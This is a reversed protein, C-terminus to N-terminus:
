VQALLRLSELAAEIMPDLRTLLACTGTVSVAGRGALHITSRASAVLGINAAGPCDLSSSILNEHSSTM